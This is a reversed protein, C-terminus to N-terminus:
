FRAVRQVGSVVAQMEADDKVTAVTVDVNEEVDGRSARTYTVGLRSSTNANGSTEGKVTM